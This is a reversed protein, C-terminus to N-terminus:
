SAPGMAALKKLKAIASEDKEGYAIVNAYKGDPGMLYLLASHDMEYGGDSTPNRRYYVRFAKAAAAVQEPTGTFGRLRPDFSSVYDHMIRVTDRQPDVTVFVYNLRDADPGLERMWRTLDSLTTPCIEPCYTYGFYIVSPKGALAAETVPAGMDDVLSFPGGIAAVGKAAPETRYTALALTLAIAAIAALGIAAMLAISRRAM